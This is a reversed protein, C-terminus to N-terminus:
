FDYKYTTGYRLYKDGPFGHETHGASIANTSTPGFVSKGHETHSTLVGTQAPPASCPNGTNPTVQSFVEEPLVADSLYTETTWRGGEGQKRVARYYGLDALERLASAVADRGEKNAAAISEASHLTGPKQSLAYLVIGKARLSLRPDQALANAIQVFRGEVSRVSRITSM